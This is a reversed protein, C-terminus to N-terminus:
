NHSSPIQPHPNPLFVGIVLTLLSVYVQQESCNDTNMLMYMSFIILILSFMVQVSFQVVRKDVDLCCSRWIEPDEVRRTRTGRRQLHVRVVENEPPANGKAEEETM